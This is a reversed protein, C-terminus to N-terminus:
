AAALRRHAEQESRIQRLGDQVFAFVAIWGILGLVLHKAFWPLFPLGFPLNWLFHLGAALLFVRWFRKDGLMHINFSRIGKIRWLAAGTLATWVVHGLPSLLGRVVINHMMADPSQQSLLVNLAYGASEFAAFGAGVAAGFLLGNLTYRYRVSQSRAVVWIVAALKGAEEVLGAAPAGFWEDLATIEFLLLSLGLSAVGGIVVVRVMQYLSVNGPANVEFFFVLTAFPVAFSGVIILGPILNLNGFAQWSLYFGAFAILAFALVRAFLWPKPWDTCVDQLAPTNGSTGVKLHDEIDADSRKRTVESFLEVLNFLRIREVGAIHAVRDAVNRILSDDADAGGPPPPPPPMAGTAARLPTGCQECFAAVAQAASGCGTCFRSPTPEM